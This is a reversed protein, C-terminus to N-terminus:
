ADRETGMPAVDSGQEAVDERASGAGIGEGNM